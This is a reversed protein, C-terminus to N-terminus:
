PTRFLRSARNVARRYGDLWVDQRHYDAFTFRVVEFGSDRLADERRKERWLDDASAYKVKGDAEIIVKNAEDLLDVRFDGERTRVWVQPTPEPLGALVVVGRALSELPSEVKARAYEVV